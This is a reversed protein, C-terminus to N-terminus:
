NRAPSNRTQWVLAQNNAPMAHDELLDLGAHDALENVWEFDRVGSEPDRTKLWEDFRANSETTFEGKYKFPGYVILLGGANLRPGVGAFFNRVSDASMIHLSNASYVLDYCQEPWSGNVDLPKPEPLNELKAHNIRIKLSDVNAPIDSSQWYLDPLSQAFYVAHQGTGGAIELVTKHQQLHARLVQLIPLKNNECAQSFPM